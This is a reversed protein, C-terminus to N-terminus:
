PQDVTSDTPAAASDVADLLTGGSPKIPCAVGRPIPGCATCVYDESGDAQDGTASTPRAGGTVVHLLAAALLMLLFTTAPRRRM